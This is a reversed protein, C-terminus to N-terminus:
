TKSLLLLVKGASPVATVKQNCSLQSAKMAHICMKIQNPLSPSMVQVAILLSQIWTDAAGCAKTAHFSLKEYCFSLLCWSKPLHSTLGSNLPSNHQLYRMDSFHTKQLAPPKQTTCTHRCTSAHLRVYYTVM